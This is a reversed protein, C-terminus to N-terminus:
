MTDLIDGMEKAEDATPVTGSILDSFMLFSHHIKDADDTYFVISQATAIVDDPSQALSQLVGTEGYKKVESRLMSSLKKAGKGPFREILDLINDYIIKGENFLDARARDAEDQARRASEFEKQTNRNRREYIRFETGSVIDGDIEATAERYLKAYQKNQLSKLTQYKGTEIKNKVEQPIRYGRSEMSKVTRKINRRLQETASIKRRPM